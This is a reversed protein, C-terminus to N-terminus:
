FSGAVQRVFADINAGDKLVLDDPTQDEDISEGEHFFRITSPDLSVRKCYAHFLRRMKTTRKLKFCMQEGQADTITLNISGPDDNDADNNDSRDNHSQDAENRDNAYDDM